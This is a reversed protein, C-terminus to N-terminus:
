HCEGRGQCLSSAFTRILRCDDGAERTYAIVFASLRPKRLHGFRFASNMSGISQAGTEFSASLDPHTKSILSSPYLAMATLDPCTFRNERFHLGNKCYGYRTSARSSVGLCLRYQLSQRYSIEQPSARPRSLLDKVSQRLTLFVLCDRPFATSVTLM